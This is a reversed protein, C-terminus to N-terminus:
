PIVHLLRKLLFLCPKKDHFLLKETIPILSYRNAGLNSWRPQAVGLSADLSNKMNTIIPQPKQDQSKDSDLMTINKHRNINVEVGIREKPHHIIEITLLPM